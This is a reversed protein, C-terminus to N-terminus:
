AYVSRELRHRGLSAFRHKPVFRRHLQDARLGSGFPDIDRDFLDCFANALLPERTHCFLMINAPGLQSVEDNVEFEWYDIAISLDIWDPTWIFGVTRAESKEARLVGVGGGGTAIM